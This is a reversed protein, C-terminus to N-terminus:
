KYTMWESISQRDYTVGDAALVPDSMLQRSLPCYFHQPLGAPAGYQGHGAPQPMHHLQQPPPGPSPPAVGLQGLAVALGHVPPLQQQQHQSFGSMPHQLPTAPRSGGMSHASLMSNLRNLQNPSTTATSVSSGSGYSDLQHHHQHHQQQYHQQQQQHHHHQQFQQQQQQLLLQHLLLDQQQQAHQAHQPPLPLGHHASPAGLSLGSSVTPGPSSTRRMATLNNLVAALQSASAGTPLQSQQAPAVHQTPALQHLALLQSTLMSSGGAAAAGQARQLQSLQHQDAPSLLGGQQQQQQLLVAMAAHAQATAAASAAGAPAGGLYGM